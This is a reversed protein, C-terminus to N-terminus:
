NQRPWGAPKDCKPCDAVYYAGEGNDDAPPKPAVIVCKNCNPCSFGFAM